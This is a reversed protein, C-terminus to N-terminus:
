QKCSCVSSSSCHQKASLLHSPQNALQRLLRDICHVTACYYCCCEATAITATATLLLLLLLNTDRAGLLESRSSKLCDSAADRIIYAYLELATDITCCCSGRCKVCTENM